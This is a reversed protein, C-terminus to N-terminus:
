IAYAVIHPVPRKFFGSRAEEGGREKYILRSKMSRSKMRDCFFCLDDEHPIRGM